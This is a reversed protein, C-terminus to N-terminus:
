LSELETKHKGDEALEILPHSLFSDSCFTHTSHVINATDIDNM